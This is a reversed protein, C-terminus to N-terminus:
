HGAAVLTSVVEAAMQPSGVHASGRYKEIMSPSNKTDLSM